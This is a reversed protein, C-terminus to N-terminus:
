WIELPIAEIVKDWEGDGSSARRLGGASLLESTVKACGWALSIDRDTRKKIREIVRPAQSEDAAVLLLLARRESWPLLADEARLLKEAASIVMALDDSSGAEFVVVTSGIGFVDGFRVAREIRTRFDRATVQRVPSGALALLDEPKVEALPGNVPARPSRLVDHVKRRLEYHSAMSPLVDAAGLVLARIRDAARGMTSSMAIVPPAFPARQLAALVEYGSVDPLQTDLVIVDPRAVVCASVAAFGSHVVEVSHAAALAGALAEARGRDAHVVLVRPPGPEPEVKPEGPEEPEEAPRPEATSRARPPPEGPPSVSVVAVAAEVAVPAVAAPRAALPWGEALHMGHPGITFPLRSAGAALRSKLVSLTREGDENRGLHLLAGCLDSLARELAPQRRLAEADAAALIRQDPRFGCLLTGIADRLPREDLLDVTLATLPDLILWDADPSEDALSALLPGVGHARVITSAAPVLELLALRGTSLGPSLDLALASAQRLLIDARESTLYVAREGRAVAAAALQLCLVTRGTGTNGAVVLGLGPAAGGVAADVVSV